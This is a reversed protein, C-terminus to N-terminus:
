WTLLKIGVLVVFAGFGKKLLTPNLGHAWRVGLPTTILTGTVIGLFAGPLVFGISGPPLMSQGSGAHVFGVTGSLALAVGMASATGVARRMAAGCLLNLVPVSLTGGGIGFLSSIGGIALGLVPHAVMGVRPVTNREPTGKHHLMKLGIAIEFLAFLQRLQGGDLFAAAQAGFWAGVLIGPTFHLALTWDVSERRHHFYTASLNTVVISALSTGVALHMSIVPNLGDLHFLVLLAPVIVIGGGVGFMGALVGGALGAGLCGVLLLISM